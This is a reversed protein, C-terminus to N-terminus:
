AWVRRLSGTGSYEDYDWVRFYLDATGGQPLPEKLYLRLIRTAGTSLTFFQLPILSAPNSTFCISYLPFSIDGWSPHKEMNVNKIHEATWVDREFIKVGNINFDLGALGDICDGLLPKQVSDPIEKSRIVFNIESVPNVNNLNIDVTTTNAPIVNNEQPITKKTLIMENINAYGSATADYLHYTDVRMEMSLIKVDLKSSDYPALVPEGNSYRDVVQDTHWFLEDKTAIDVEFMMNDTINNVSLFKSIHVTWAMPLHITLLLEGNTSEALDEVAQGVTCWQFYNMIETIKEEDTRGSLEDRIFHDSSFVREIENSGVIFRVVKPLIYGTGNRYTICHNPISNFGGTGGFKSELGNYMPKSLRVQLTCRGVKHGVNSIPIQAKLQGLQATGNMPHIRYEHVYPQVHGGEDRDFISTNNDLLHQAEPGGFFHKLKDSM